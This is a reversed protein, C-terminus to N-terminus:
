TQFRMASVSYSSVCPAQHTSEGSVNIAYLVGPFVGMVWWLLREPWWSIQDVEVASEVQLGDTSWCSMTRPSLPARFYSLPTQAGERWVMLVSVQSLPLSSVLGPGLSSLLLRKTHPKCCGGLLCSRHGCRQAACIQSKRNDSPSYRAPTGDGPFICLRVLIFIAMKTNTTPMAHMNVATTVSWQATSLGRTSLSLSVQSAAWKPRHLSHLFCM